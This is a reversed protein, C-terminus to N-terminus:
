VSLLNLIVNLSSETRKLQSFLREVAPRELYAWRLRNPISRKGHHVSPCARHLAALTLQINESTARLGAMLEPTTLWQYVQPESSNLQELEVKVLLLQAVFQALEAPADQINQYAEISVKAATSIANILAILSAAGGVAEM